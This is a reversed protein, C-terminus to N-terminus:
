VAGRYVQCASLGSFDYGDCSESSYYTRIHLLFPYLDSRLVYYVSFRCVSDLRDSAVLDIFYDFRLNKHMKLFYLFKDIYM